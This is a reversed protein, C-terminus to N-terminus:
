ALPGSLTMDDLQNVMIRFIMKNFEDQGEQYVEPAAESAGYFMMAKYIILMHYQLPLGPVDADTAMETPIKFYDGSITYGDLPVPGLGISLNPTVTFEVPRTPSFRPAGFQYKDRWDDYQLYEMEFESTLGTATVYNRFTQLDWNGFDTIGIQALTYTPQNLVTTFTMSNRMWLWDPRMSQIFMWSENVWDIM